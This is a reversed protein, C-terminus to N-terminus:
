PRHMAASDRRPGTPLHWGQRPDLRIAADRVRAELEFALAARGRAPADDARLLAFAGRSLPQAVALARRRHVPLMHFQICSFVPMREPWPQRTGRRWRGTIPVANTRRPGRRAPLPNGCLRALLTSRFRPPDRCQPAALGHQLQPTGATACTHRAGCEIAKADTLGVVPTWAWRDRTTGDGLEGELNEGACLVEGTAKMVCTHEEGTCAM